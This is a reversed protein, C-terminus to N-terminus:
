DGHRKRQERSGMVFLSDVGCAVLVTPWHGRHALALSSDKTRRERMRESPTSVGVEGM